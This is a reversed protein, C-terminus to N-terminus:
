AAYSIYKIAPNISRNDTWDSGYKPLNSDDFFLRKTFNRQFYLDIFTTQSDDEENFKKLYEWVDEDPMEFLHLLQHFAMDNLVNRTEPEDATEKIYAKPVAGLAFLNCAAQSNIRRPLIKAINRRLSTSWTNELYRILKGEDSNPDTKNEQQLAYCGISPEETPDSLSALYHDRDSVYGYIGDPIDEGGASGLDISQDFCESQTSTIIIENNRILDGKKMEEWAINIRNCFCVFCRWIKITDSKLRQCGEDWVRAKVETQFLEGRKAKWYTPGTEAFEIVRQRTLACRQQLNYASILNPM